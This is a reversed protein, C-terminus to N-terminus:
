GAPVPVRTLPMYISGTPQLNSEYIVIESVTFAVSETRTNLHVDALAAASPAGRVRGITVHPTFSKKEPEYGLEKCVTEISHHIEAVRAQPDEL